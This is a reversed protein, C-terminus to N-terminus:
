IIEIEGNIISFNIKLGKSVRLLTYIKCDNGNEMSRLGSNSGMGCSISAKFITLKEELRKSKVAEALKDLQKQM